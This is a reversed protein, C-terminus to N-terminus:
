YLGAHHWSGERWGDRLTLSWPAGVVEGAKRLKRGM